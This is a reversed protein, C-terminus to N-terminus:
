SETGGTKGYIQGVVAQGGQHVHVHEVRVKQQQLGRLKTLAETQNLFTRQLKIGLNLHREKLFLDDTRTAAQLQAMLLCHCSALQGILMAELANGPRLEGLLELIATARHGPDSGPAICAGLVMEVLTESLADRDIGTELFFGSCPPPSQDWPLKEVM